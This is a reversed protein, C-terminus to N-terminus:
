LPAGRAPWADRLETEMAEVGGARAGRLIGM